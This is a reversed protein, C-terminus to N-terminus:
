AQGHASKSNQGEPAQARKRTVLKFAVFLAIFAFAGVAPWPVGIVIGAVIGCIIIVLAAVLGIGRPNIM